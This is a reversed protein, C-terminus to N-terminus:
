HTQSETQECHNMCSLFLDATQKQLLSTVFKPGSELQEEKVAIQECTEAVLGNEAEVVFDDNSIRFRPM